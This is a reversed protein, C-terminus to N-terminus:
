LTKSHALCTIALLTWTVVIRLEFSLQRLSEVTHVATHPRANDHLVAVGKSLLGRRETGIAPKLKNRLTESFHVSNGTTGERPSAGFNTTKCGSITLMVKGASLQTEFKKNVSSTPHRCEM